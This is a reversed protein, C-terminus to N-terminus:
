NRGTHQQNNSLMPWSSNAAGTANTSLAYVKGTRDTGNRTLIYIVGNADIVASSRIDENLQTTKWAVEGDANLVYFSGSTDGFYLQGHNDIAPAALVRGTTAYTWKVTGDTNYAVLMNDEGGAYLTGDEAISAGGQEMKAGPRSDNDWLLAGNAMNFALLHGTNDDTKGTIYVTNAAENIAPASATYSGYGASWKQSGDPNIAYLSGDSSAVFVTGDAGIAPTMRIDGGVAFSWNIGGTEPDIALLMNDNEMGIYITGDAAIAPSSYQIRNGLDVRWKVSGDTNFAVFEGNYDGIYAVGNDAIAASARVVEDTLIGFLFNGNQVAFMNYDGRSPDSSKGDTGFYVIGTDSVCVSSNTSYYPVDYTWLVTPETTAFSPELVTVTKTYVEASQAGSNDTVSLSVSYTGTTNYTYVPNAEESTDGNGFDWAWTTIAGDLDFSLDTFNIAQGTEAVDGIAWTFAAVPRTNVTDDDKSCAMVLSLIVLMYGYTYLTKM